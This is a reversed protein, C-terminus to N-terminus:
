TPTPTDARALPLSCRRLAPALALAAARGSVVLSPCVKFKSMEKVEDVGLEIMDLVRGDFMRTLVLDHPRKKSHLGTM